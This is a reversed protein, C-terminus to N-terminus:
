VIVNNFQIEHDSIKRAVLVYYGVSTELREPCQEDIVEVMCVNRSYNDIDYGYNDCVKINISKCRKKGLIADKIDKKLVERRRDVFLEINDKFRRNVLRLKQFKVDYDNECVRSIIDYLTENSLKNMKVCRLYFLCINISLVDIINLNKLFLLLEVTFFITVDFNM